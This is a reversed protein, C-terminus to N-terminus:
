VWAIAEYRPKGDLIKDQLLEALFGPPIKKCSQSVPGGSIHWSAIHTRRSALDDRDVCEQSWLEQAIAHIILVGHHGRQILCIHCSLLTTDWTLDEWAVLRCSIACDGTRSIRTWLLDCIAGRVKKEWLEKFFYGQTHVFPFFYMYQFNSKVTCFIPSRGGRILRYKSFHHGCNNFLHHGLSLLRMGLGCWGLVQSLFKLTGM